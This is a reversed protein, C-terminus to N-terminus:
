RTAPWLGAPWDYSGPKVFVSPRVKGGPQFACFGGPWREGAILRTWGLQRLVAAATAGGELLLREVRAHRLIEECRAALSQALVVPSVSNASPNGGIGVLVSGGNELAGAIEVPNLPFGFARLGCDRAQQQRREWWAASGCIVLTAAQRHTVVPEGNSGSVRSAQCKRLLARFFDVGGACLTGDAVSAAHRMLDAERAVDPIFVNELEGGLLDTIRASTRPHETDGAFETTHLLRGDVFLQGRRITRGRTPNAPILLAQSKAAAQLTARLEALVNGRLVSDCKKYLWAPRAQAVCTAVIEQVIRAADTASRGRTDTDVCVVDRDTPLSLSTQVEATLGLDVAAAALEAAGSLDDAVVAIM